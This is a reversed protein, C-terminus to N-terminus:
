RKLGKFGDLFAQLAERERQEKTREKESKPNLSGMLIDGLLNEFKERM